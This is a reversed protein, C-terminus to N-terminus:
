HAFAITIVKKAKNELLVKKAESLTAGTTTIDDYVICIKDKVEVTDFLGISNEINMLRQQKNINKHQRPINKKFFLINKLVKIDKNKFTSIIKKQILNLHNYGEKKLRIKSAPITLILYKIKELNEQEFIYSQIYESMFHSLITAANFDKEYKLSWLISKIEPNKYPFLSIHSNYIIPSFHTSLTDISFSHISRSHKKKVFLVGIVKNLFTILQKIITNFSQM